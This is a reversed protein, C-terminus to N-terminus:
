HYAVNWKTRVLPFSHVVEFRVAEIGFLSRVMQRADKKKKKKSRQSSLSFYFLNCVIVPSIIAPKSFPFFTNKIVYPYETDNVM